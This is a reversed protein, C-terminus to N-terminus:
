NFNLVRLNLSSIFKFILEFGACMAVYTHVEIRAKIM